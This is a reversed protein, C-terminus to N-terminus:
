TVSFTSDASRLNKSLVTALLKALQMSCSAAAPLLTPHAILRSPLTAQSWTLWIPTVALSSM